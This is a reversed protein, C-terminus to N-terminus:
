APFHTLLGCFFLRDTNEKTQLAIRSFPKRDVSCLRQRDFKPLWTSGSPLGAPRLAFEGDRAAFPNVAQGASAQALRRKRRGVHPGASAQVLRCKRRGILAALVGFPKNARRKKGVELRGTADLPTRHRGFLLFAFM